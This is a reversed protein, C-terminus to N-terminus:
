GNLADKLRQELTIKVDGTTWSIAAHAVDAVEELQRLLAAFDSALVVPESDPAANSDVGPQM